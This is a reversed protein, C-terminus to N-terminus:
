AMPSLIACNRGQKKAQYLAKDATILLQKKTYKSGPIVATVGLSLSVDDRVLSDPHPIRLDQIQLRIKEAVLIANEASTQPLVIAFEEGGYRAVLDAPRNVAKVIAQAVQQLCVDGELHGFRDNYQKFYDIDCLILALSFKERKGRQWEKILFEDLYHRNAIGTLRDVTALKNLKRNLRLLENEAAQRHKIETELQKNKARLEAQLYHINLQNKVRAIVEDVQFPKTIYDSGGIQFALTKDRVDKLASIFIIPIDKTIFDKKLIECVSFGDMEPMSIDLLILNPVDTKALEIASKGRECTKTQYGQVTLVTSLLELNDPKDDVILIRAPCDSLVKSM